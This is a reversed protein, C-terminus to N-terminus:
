QIKLIQGSAELKSKIDDYSLDYISKGKDIAM